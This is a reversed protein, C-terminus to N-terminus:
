NEWKYKRDGLTTNIRLPCSKSAPVYIGTQSNNAPITVNVGNASVSLPEATYNRISFMGYDCTQGNHTQRGVFLVDFVRFPYGAPLSAKKAAALAQQKRTEAAAKQQVEMMQNRLQEAELTKKELEATRDVLLQAVVAKENEMAALKSELTNVLAQFEMRAVDNKQQETMLMEEDAQLRLKLSEVEQKGACGSLFLVILIKALPQVCM